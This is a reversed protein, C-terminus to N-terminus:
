CIIKINMHLSTVQFFAQQFDFGSSFFDDENYQYLRRGLQVVTYLAHLISQKYSIYVDRNWSYSNGINFM